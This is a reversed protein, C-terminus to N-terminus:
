LIIVGQLVHGFGLRFEIPKETERTTDLETGDLLRATYHLSVIDGKETHRGGTNIKIFAMKWYKTKQVRLVPATWFFAEGDHMQERRYDASYYFILLIIIIVTFYRPINNKM